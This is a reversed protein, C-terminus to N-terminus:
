EPQINAARLIESYGKMRNAVQQDLVEPPGGGVDLALTNFRERIAPEDLVKNFAENLKKIVDPPTGAPAYVAAQIGGDFSYGPYGSEAMTPIDPLQPIRQPSTVALARLKGGKLLETAQPPGLFAVHIQGAYLDNIIAGAGKYPVHLMSTGTQRNFYEGAIHLLNGKGASGFAINNKPDSALKVLEEVSTAPVDNNVVLVMGPSNGIYVVSAFDNVTDYPLKYLSPNITHSTPALLLTYGDPEANAVASTGIIGNAGARNEVVIPQGLQKGLHDALLRAVLDTPGGPGFPM